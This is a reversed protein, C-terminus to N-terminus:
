SAIPLSALEVAVEARANPLPLVIPLEVIGNDAFAEAMEHLADHADCYYDSLYGNQLGRTNCHVANAFYDLPVGTVEAWRCVVAFGPDKGAEYGAVSRPSKGVLPAITEQTFNAHRRAKVLRENLTLEEVFTGTETM